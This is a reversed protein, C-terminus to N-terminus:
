IKSLDNLEQALSSINSSIDLIKNEIRQSKNLSGWGNKFIVNILNSDGSIEVLELFEQETLSKIKAYHLICDSFRTPSFENIFGRCRFEADTFNVRSLLSFMFSAQTLSAGTFDAWTLDCLDFDTYKLNANKFNANSFNSSDSKFSHLNAEEFVGETFKSNYSKVSTFNAKKFSSQIISVNSLVCKRFDLNELNAGILNLREGEKHESDLWLQHQRLMEDLEEQTIKRLETM